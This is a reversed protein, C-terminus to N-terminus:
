SNLVENQQESIVVEVQGNENTCERLSVLLNSVVEVFCLAVKDNFFIKEHCVCGEM